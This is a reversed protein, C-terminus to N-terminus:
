YLPTELMGEYFEIATGTSKGSRRGCCAAKLRSRDGTFAKQKAHQRLVFKGEAAQVLARYADVSLTVNPSM